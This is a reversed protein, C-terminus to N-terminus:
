VGIESNIKFIDIRQTVMESWYLYVENQIQM